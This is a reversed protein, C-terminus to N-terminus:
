STSASSCPTATTRASTEPLPADAAMRAEVRCPMTYECRMEPMARSHTADATFAKRHTLSTPLYAVMTIKHTSGDPSTSYMLQPCSGGSTTRWTDSPEVQLA